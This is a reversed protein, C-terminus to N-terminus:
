FHSLFLFWPDHVPLDGIVDGSFSGCWLSGQIYLPTVLSLARAAFTMVRNGRRCAGVVREDTVVADAPRGHTAM